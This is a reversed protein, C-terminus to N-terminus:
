QEAELILRVQARVNPIRNKVVDWVLEYDVGFYGHRRLTQDNLFEEVTLESIERLLYETEELIHRLYDRPEFSM